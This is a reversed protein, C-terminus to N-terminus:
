KREILSMGLSESFKMLSIEDPSSAQFTKNGGQDFTPTVNHCLSLCLINDHM